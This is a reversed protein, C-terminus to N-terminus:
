AAGGCGQEPRGGAGCAKASECSGCLDTLEAHTFKGVRGHEHRVEDVLEDMVRQPLEAGHVALGPVDAAPHQQEAIGRVGYKWEMPLAHVGRKLIAQHEIIEEGLVFVHRM